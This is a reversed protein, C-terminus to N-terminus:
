PFCLRIVMLNEAGRKHYWMEVQEPMGVLSSTPRQWALRAALWGADPLGANGAGQATGGVANKPVKYM